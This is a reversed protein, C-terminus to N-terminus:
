KKDNLLLYNPIPTSPDIEVDSNNLNWLDVLLEWNTNYRNSKAPSLLFNMLEKRMKTNLTDTKGTHHFYEACDIRICTHFNKGKTEKDWIHFHPLKGPDDTHVYVDFRDQIFGVRSMENLMSERLNIYKNMNTIFM